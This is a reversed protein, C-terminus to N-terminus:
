AFDNYFKRDEETLPASADMITAKIFIVTEVNKVYQQDSGFIYRLLPMDKLYPIGKRVITTKEENFGGIVMIDGSKIRLTSDLEKKEVVPINNVVTVGLDQGDFQLGSLFTAAPDEVYTNATSITPRINMIIENTDIDATAQLDLIVGIPVTNMISQVIIPTNPNVPTVGPATFQNQLQPQITFYVKDTAFSLRSKQNNMVNLRPSSITKTTGFTQLFQVAATLGATKGPRLTAAFPTAATDAITTAVFNGSAGFSNSLYNFDIGTSFEDELAVEVLRVEVLIQTMALKKIKEIYTEVEQHMTLPAHLTVVGAQKNISYNVDKKQSVIYKLGEEFQQWMSNNSHWQTQQNLGNQSQMMGMGGMGGGRNMMNNNMWPNNMANNMMNRNNVNQSIPATASNTNNGAGGSMSDVFTINYNRTFPKNATFRIVNNRVSINLEALEAIREFVDAVKSNKLSLIVNGTIDPDVEIDVSALHSVEMIADKVNVNEDISVSIRKQGSSGMQEAISQKKPPTSAIDRAIHEIKEKVFQKNEYRDLILASDVRAHHLPKKDSESRPTSRSDKETVFSQTDELYSNTINATKNETNAPVSIQTAVESFLPDVDNAAHVTTAFVYFSLVCLNKLNM